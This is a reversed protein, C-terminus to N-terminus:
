KKSITQIEERLKKIENYLIVAAGANVGALLILGGYIPYLFSQEVGGGVLPKLLAEWIGGLLVVGFFMGVMAAIVQKMEMRREKQM